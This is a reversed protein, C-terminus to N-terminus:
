TDRLLREKDRQDPVEHGMLGVKEGDFYQNQLNGTRVLGATQQALDLFNNEDLRASYDRRVVPDGLQEQAHLFTAIDDSRSNNHAIMENTM